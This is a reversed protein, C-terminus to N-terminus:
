GNRRRRVSRQREEYSKILRDHYDAWRQRYSKLGEMIVLMDSYKKALVTKGAGEPMQTLFEGFNQIVEFQRDEVQRLEACWHASRWRHQRNSEM